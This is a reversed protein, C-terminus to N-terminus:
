HKFGEWKSATCHCLVSVFGRPEQGTKQNPGPCSWEYWTDQLFSGAEGSRHGKLSCGRCSCLQVPLWLCIETDHSDAILPVFRWYSWCWMCIVTHTLGWLLCCWTYIVGPFVCPPLLRNTLPLFSEQRMLHLPAARLLWSLNVPFFPPQVHWQVLGSHWQSVTGKGVITVIVWSCLVRYIILQLVQKPPSCFLSCGLSLLSLIFAWFFVTTELIRLICNGSTSLGAKICFHVLFWISM